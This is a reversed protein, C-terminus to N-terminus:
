NSHILADIPAPPKTCDTPASIAAPRDPVQQAQKLLEIDAFNCYAFLQELHHSTFDCPLEAAITDGCDRINPEMIPRLSCHVISPRDKLAVASRLLAPVDARNSNCVLCVDFRTHTLLHKLQEDQALHPIHGLSLIASSIKWARERDADAVLVRLAEQQASDRPQSKQRAEELRALGIRAVRLSLEIQTEVGMKRLLATRLKLFRMNSIKLETAIQSSRKGDALMLCALQMAHGLRCFRQLTTLTPPAKSQYLQYPSNQELM